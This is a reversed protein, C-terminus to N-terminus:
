NHFKKAIFSRVTRLNRMLFGVLSLPILAVLVLLSWTPEFSGQLFKSVIMDVAFSLLAINAFLVALFKYIDFIMAKILFFSLISLILVAIISLLWYLKKM